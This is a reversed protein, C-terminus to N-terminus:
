KLSVLIFARVRENRDLVITVQAHKWTVDQDGERQWVEQLCKNDWMICVALKGIHYGHMNYYFSLQVVCDHKSPPFM